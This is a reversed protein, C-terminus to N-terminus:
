GYTARERLLDTDSIGGSPDALDIRVVAGRTAWRLRRWSHRAGLNGLYAAISPWLTSQNPDVLLIPGSRGGTAMYVGGGLADPFDQDTAAGYLTANPFFDTAVAASTDFLTQGWVGIASPDAGLAADPGGVAYVTDNPYQALYAATEPAQTAGNTLLIAGGTKIVAPDASLADYFSM